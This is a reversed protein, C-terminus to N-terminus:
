KGRSTPTQPSPLFQNHESLSIDRVEDAVHGPALLCEIRRSLACLYDRLRPEPALQALLLLGLLLLLPLLLLLLLFLLLLLSRRLGSRHRFAFALGLRNSRRRGGGGGSRGCGLDRDVRREESLKAPRRHM